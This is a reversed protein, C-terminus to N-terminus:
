TVRRPERDTRGRRTRKRGTSMEAARKRTFSTAITRAHEVSIDGARLADAVVPLQELKRALHVHGHAVGADMRCLAGLASGASAYGDTAWEGSHHYEALQELWAAQIAEVESRAKVLLEGLPSCMNTDYDFFM